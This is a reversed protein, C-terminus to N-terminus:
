VPRAPAPTRAIWAKVEHVVWMGGPNIPALSKLLESKMAEAGEAFGEDKMMRDRDAAYQAQKETKCQSCWDHGKNAPREGCRTCLPSIEAAAPSIEASETGSSSKAM